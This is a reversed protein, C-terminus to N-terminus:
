NWGVTFNGILFPILQTFFIGRKKSRTMNETRNKRQKHVQVHAFAYRRVSSNEKNTNIEVGLPVWQLALGLGLRQAGDRLDSSYSQYYFRIQINPCHARLLQEGHWAAAGRQLDTERDGECGQPHDREDTLALQRSGLCRM